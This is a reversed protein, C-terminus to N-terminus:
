KAKDQQTQFIHRPLKYNIYTRYEVCNTEKIKYKRGNM